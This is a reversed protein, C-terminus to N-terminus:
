LRQVARGCNPPNRYKPKKASSSGAGWIDVGRAMCSIFTVFGDAIAQRVVTDLNSKVVSDQNLKEPRHGTFCRHLRLEQEANTKSM